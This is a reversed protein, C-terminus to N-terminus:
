APADTECIGRQLVVGSLPEENLNSQCRYFPASREGASCYAISGEFTTDIPRGTVSVISTSGDVAVYENPGVRAVIPLDELWTNM